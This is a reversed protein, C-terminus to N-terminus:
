RVYERPYGNIKWKKRQKSGFEWSNREPIPDAAYQWSVQVKKVKEPKVHEVVGRM